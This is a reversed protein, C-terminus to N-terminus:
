QEYRLSASGTLVPSIPILHPVFSFSTQPNSGTRVDLTLTVTVTAGSGSVVPDTAPDTTITATVQEKSVYFLSDCVAQKIPTSTMTSCSDNKQFTMTYPTATNGSGLNPTVAAVRAASRAANNLMNRTYMARGFETIGFALLVLIFLVFAMEVMAQGKTCKHWFARSIM